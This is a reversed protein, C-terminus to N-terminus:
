RGSVWCTLNPAAGSNVVRLYPASVSVNVVGKATLESDLVDFWTANDPSIQVSVTGDFTGDAFFSFGGYFNSFAESPTNSIITVQRM